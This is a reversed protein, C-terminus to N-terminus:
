SAARVLESRKMQSRIKRLAHATFREAEDQSIRGQSEWHHKSYWDQAFAEMIRASERAHLDLAESFERGSEISSLRSSSGVNNALEKDVFFRLTRALFDGFFSKALAGLRTPTSHRRFARCLDEVSSGFLSRGEQGMTESLAHRMALSALESFPGSETHRALVARAHKTLRAIFGLATDSERVEIGLEAVAGTFDTGRSASALRTVLWFCYTLSPDGGLEQLRRESAQLTALAVAGVEEASSLRLLDVVDGWRRTTPLRGLRVHGM